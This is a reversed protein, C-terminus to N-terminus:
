LIVRVNTPAGLDALSKALMQLVLTTRSWGRSAAEKDLADMVETPMRMTTTKKNKTTM